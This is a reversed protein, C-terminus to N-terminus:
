WFYNDYWAHKAHNNKLISFASWILVGEASYLEYEVTKYNKRVCSKSLISYYAQGNKKFRRFSWFKKSVPDWKRIVRAWEIFYYMYNMSKKWELMFQDTIQRKIKINFELRIYGPLLKVIKEVLDIPLNKWISSMPAGWYLVLSSSANDPPYLNYELSNTNGM